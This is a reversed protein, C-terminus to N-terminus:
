SRQFQAALSFLGIFDSQIKEALEALSSSIKQSLLLARGAQLYKRASKSSAWRGKVLVDEISVGSLHLYTAGGHRLSHPVYKDSLGYSSITNKFLKRYKDASYPFLPTSEKTEYKLKELLQLCAPDTLTVFQNTGTKAKRLRVSAYTSQLGMRVDGPLAIDEPQLQLCESIRLLGHFSLYVAAGLRWHGKTALSTSILATLPLTLHPYSMSPALKTWGKLALMSLPLSTRLSPFMMVVGYITQQAKIKGAGSFYLYHIYDLLTDDFLSFHPDTGTQLLWHTFDLVATSYLLQISPAYASHILFRSKSAGLRSM